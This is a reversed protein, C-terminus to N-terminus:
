SSGADRLLDRIELLLAPDTEALVPLGLRDVSGGVRARIKTAVEAPTGVAAFTHLMEDDVLDPLSEWRGEQTLRRAEPQVDGWGHLDLVPRYAPTSAYFAIRARTETKAAEIGTDDHGTVVLAGGCVTLQSRARSSRALGADVAPLTVERFFRETTFAHTLLGDAVEAAVETMRPGVAAVFVAPPGYPNPSPAFNPTMLTHTYFDGRFDLRSETNWAEWIARLAAVYERMRDAPRSWPMSFRKVIHSAVQTGLGLVFRGGSVKQLDNATVAVTMPTRAFAVAIATGLVVRDTVPAAAGLTLFPDHATETVWLGDWGDAEVAQARRAADAPGLDRILTDVPIPSM